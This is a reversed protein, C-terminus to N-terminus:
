ANEHAAARPSKRHEGLGIGRKLNVKEIGITM